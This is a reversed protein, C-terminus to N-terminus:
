NCDNLKWDAPQLYSLSVYPTPMPNLVAQVNAFCIPPKKFTEESSLSVVAVIQTIVVMNPFM